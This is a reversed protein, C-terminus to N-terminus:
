GCCEIHLQLEGKPGSIFIKEVAMPKATQTLKTTAVTIEKSVRTSKTIAGATATAIANESKQMGIRLASTKTTKVEVVKSSAWRTDVKPKVNKTDLVSNTRSLARNGLEGLAARRQPPAPAM